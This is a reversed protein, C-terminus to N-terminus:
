EEDTLRRILSISLIMIAIGFVEVAILGMGLWGFTMAATGVHGTIQGYSLKEAMSAAAASNMHQWLVSVFCFSMGVISTVLVAQTMPRSPFPKVEVASGADDEEEHWGPFTSLMVSAIIATAIVVFLLGDFVIDEKFGNAIYILNLPDHTGNASSSSPRIIDALGKASTSCVWEGGNLMACLGTYGARVEFTPEDGSQTINQVAHVIETSVISQDSLVMSSTDKYQLSLLYVNRLNSSSCGAILLSLFLVAIALIMMLVHHYGIMPMFRAVTAAFKAMTASGAQFTKAHTQTYLNELQLDRPHAQFLTLSISNVILELRGM